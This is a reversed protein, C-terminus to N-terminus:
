PATLANLLEPTLEEGRALRVLPDSDLRAAAQAAQIAGVLTDLAEWTPALSRPTASSMLKSLTARLASTARLAEEYERM